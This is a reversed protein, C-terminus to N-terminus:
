ALKIIECRDDIIWNLSVSSKCMRVEWENIHEVKILRDKEFYYTNSTKQNAFRFEEYLKLKLKKRVLFIILRRM